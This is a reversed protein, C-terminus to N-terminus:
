VYGAEAFSPACEACGCQRHPPHAGAQREPHWLLDRLANDWRERTLYEEGWLPRKAHRDWAATIQESSLPQWDGAVARAVCEDLAALAHSAQYAPYGQQTLTIGGADRCELVARAYVTLHAIAQQLRANEASLETITNM